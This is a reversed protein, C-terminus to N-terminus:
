LSLLVSQIENTTVLVKGMTELSIEEIVQGMLKAVLKAILAVQEDTITM